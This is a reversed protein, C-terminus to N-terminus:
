KRSRRYKLARERKDTSSLAFQLVTVVALFGLIALLLLSYDALGFENWTIM